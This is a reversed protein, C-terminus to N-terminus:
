ITATFGNGNYPIVFPKFVVQNGRELVSEIWLVRSKGIWKKFAGSAISAYAGRIKDAVSNVKPISVYGVSLEEGQQNVEVALIANPETASTEM